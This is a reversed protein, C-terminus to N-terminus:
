IITNSSGLGTITLNKNITLNGTTLTITGPAAFTIMDGSLATAIADRLSGAGDDNTNTVTITAVRALSIPQVGPLMTVLLLSIAILSRLASYSIRRSRM